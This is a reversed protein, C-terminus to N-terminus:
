ITCPCLLGNLFTNIKTTITGVFSFSPNNFSIFYISKKSYTKYENNVLKQVIIFMFIIRIFIIIGLKLKMQTKKIDDFM